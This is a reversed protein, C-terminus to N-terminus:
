PNKEPYSITNAGTTLNAMVVNEEIATTTGTKFFDLSLKYQGPVMDYGPIITVESTVVPAFARGILKWSDGTDEWLVVDWTPDIAPLNIITISKVLPANINKEQFATIPLTTDGALPVEGEYRAALEKDGNFINLRIEWSSSELITIFPFYVSDSITADITFPEWTDNRHNYFSLQGTMNHYKSPIGTITLSTATLENVLAGKVVDITVNTSFIDGKVTYTKYDNDFLVLKSDEYDYLVAFGRGSCINRLRAEADSGHIIGGEIVFTGGFNEVGGGGNGTAENASIAGGIMAFFGQYNSVGGGYHATNGSIEGGFLYFKGDQNLVGGGDGEVTTSRNGSIKGNYMYFEGGNIVGAGYVANNGLIEGNEMYFKGNSWVGGGEGDTMSTNNNAIRGANMYFTGMNMLGNGSDATNGRIAGGNMIFTGLSTNRVGGGMVNVNSTNINNNGAIVAGENMILTGRDIVILASTNNNIGRLEVNELILTVGNNITFMAGPSQLTLIKKNSTLTIEIEEGFFYLIQPSILENNFATITYKDNTLTNDSLEAFQQAVTPVTIVGTPNSYIYDSYGQSSVAARVKFGADEITITYTEGHEGTIFDYEDGSGRQWHFIASAEEPLNSTKATLLKGAKAEGTVNVKGTMPKTIKLITIDVTDSVVGDISVAVPFKGPEDYNESVKVKFSVKVGSATVKGEKILIGNMEKVAGNEKEGIIVNSGTLDINSINEGDVTIFYTLEGGQGAYVVQPEAPDALTVSKVIQKKVKENGNDNGGENCGALVLIFALGFVAMSSSGVFNGINSILKIGNKGM